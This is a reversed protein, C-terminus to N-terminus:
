SAPVLADTLIADLTRGPDDVASPALQGDGGVEYATIDGSQVIMAVSSSGVAPVVLCWAFGAGAESRSAAVAQQVSDRILERVEAVPLVGLAHVGAADAVDIVAVGGVLAFFSCVAAGDALDPLSSASSSAPALYTVVAKRGRLAARAPDLLASPTSSETLMGRIALSRMGRLASATLVQTSDTDVTPLLGPWAARASVAVAVIEDDSLQLINNATTM